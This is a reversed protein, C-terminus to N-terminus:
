EEILGGEKEEEVPDPLGVKNSIPSPTSVVVVSQSSGSTDMDDVVPTAM